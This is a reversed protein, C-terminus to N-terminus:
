WSRRRYDKGGGWPHLADGDPDIILERGSDTLRWADPKINHAKADDDLIIPWMSGREHTTTLHVVSDNRMEWLGKEYEIKPDLRGRQSQYAFTGDAHLAVQEERYDCDCRSPVGERDSNLYVWRGVAVPDGQGHVYAAMCLLGCLLIYGSVIKM